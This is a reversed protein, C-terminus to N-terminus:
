WGVETGAALDVIAVAVADDPEHMLAGHKAM